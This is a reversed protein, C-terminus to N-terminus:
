RISKLLTYTQAPKHLNKSWFKLCPPPSSKKKFSKKCRNIYVKGKIKKKHWLNLIDNKYNKKTLFRIKYKYM